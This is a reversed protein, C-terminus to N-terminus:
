KHEECLKPEHKTLLLCVTRFFDKWSSCKLVERYKLLREYTKDPINRIHITINKRSM